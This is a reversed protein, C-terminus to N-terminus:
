KRVPFEVPLLIAAKRPRWQTRKPLGLSRPCWLAWGRLIAADGEEIDYSEDRYSVGVAVNLDNAWGSISARRFIPM